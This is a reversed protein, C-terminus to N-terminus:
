VVGCAYAVTGEAHAHPVEKKGKTMHSRRICNSLYHLHHLYYWKKRRGKCLLLNFRCAPLCPVNLVPLILSLKPSALSQHILFVREFPTM